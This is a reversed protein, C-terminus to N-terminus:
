LPLELPCHFMVLPNLERSLEGRGAVVCWLVTLVGTPCHFTVCPNSERSLECDALCVCMAFTLMGNIPRHLFRRPLNLLRARVPSAANSYVNTNTLTATGDDDIYLGGGQLCIFGLAYSAM